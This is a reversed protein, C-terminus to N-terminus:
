YGTSSIYATGQVGFNASPTTSGIGVNGTSTIILATSTAASTSTSILFLPVSSNAYGALSLRAAPTTSGIGVNGSGSEVVFKDTQIALGGAFTSTATTSTATFYPASISSTASIVSPTLTGYVTLDGAVQASGTLSLSSGSLGTFTGFVSSLSTNTITGHTLTPNILKVDELRDINNSGAVMQNVNTIYVSNGETIHRIETTQGKLSAIDSALKAQLSALKDDVDGLTFSPERIVRETREIVTPASEGKTEAIGGKSFSTGLDEGAQAPLSASSKSIGGRTEESLSETSGKGGSASGDKPPYLPSDSSDPSAVALSPESDNGFVLSKGKELVPSLTDHTLKALRKFPSLLQELVGARSVSAHLAAPLDALAAFKISTESLASSIGGHVDRASQQLTSQLTSYLSDLSVSVAAVERRATTFAPALAVVVQRRAEAFKEFTPALFIKGEDALAIGVFAAEERLEETNAYLEGLTQHVLPFKVLESGAALVGGSLLATLVASRLLPASAAHLLLKTGSQAANAVVPALSALKNGLRATASSMANGIGSVASSLAGLKPLAVPPVSAAEGVVPSQHTMKSVSSSTTDAPVPSAKPVTTVDEVISSEAPSNNEGTKTQTIAGQGVTELSTEAPTASVESAASGTRLASVKEILELHNRLSDEAVYWLRGIMKCELKGGRCLQGIYDASYKSIQVATKTPIFSKGDFTLPTLTMHSATIISRAFPLFTHICLPMEFASIVERNGLRVFPMTLFGLLSAM